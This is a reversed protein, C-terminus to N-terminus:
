IISRSGSKFCRWNETFKLEVTRIKRWKSSPMKWFFATKMIIKWLFIKFIKEIKGELSSITSKKWGHPWFFTIAPTTIPRLFILSFICFFKLVLQKHGSFHVSKQAMRYRSVTVEMRLKLNNRLVDPVVGAKLIFLKLDVLCRLFNDSLQKKKKTKWYTLSIYLLLSFKLDTTAPLM